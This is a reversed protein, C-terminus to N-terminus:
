PTPANRPRTIWVYLCVIVGVILGIVGTFYIYYLGCFGVSRSAQEWGLLNFIWAALLGLFIPGLVIAVTAAFGAVLGYVIIGVVKIASNRSASMRASISLNSYPQDLDLRSPSGACSKRGAPGYPNSNPASILHNAPSTGVIVLQSARTYM